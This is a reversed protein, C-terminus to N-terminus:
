GRGADLIQRINWIQYLPLDVLHQDRHYNQLSTRLATEPEYKRCFLKLSQAHIVLGAKAEVPIIRNHYSFIFDVESTAGESWYYISEAIKEAQLEQLM